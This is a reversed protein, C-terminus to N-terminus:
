FIGIDLGANEGGLHRWRHLHSTLFLIFNPLQLRLHLKATATAKM